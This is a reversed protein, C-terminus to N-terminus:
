FLWFWFESRVLLGLNIRKEPNMTGGVESARASWESTMCTVEKHFTFGFLKIRWGKSKRTMLAKDEEGFRWWKIFVRRGRHWGNSILSLFLSSTPNPLQTQTLWTTWVISALVASESVLGHGIWQTWWSEFLHLTWVPENGWRSWEWRCRRTLLQHACTCQNVVKMVWWQQHISNM